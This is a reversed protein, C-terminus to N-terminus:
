WAESDMKRFAATAVVKCVSRYGTEGVYLVACFMDRAESGDEPLAGCRGGQLHAQVWDVLGRFGVEPLGGFSWRAALGTGLRGVGAGCQTGQGVDDQGDHPPDGPQQQQRHGPDGAGQATGLCGVGLRGAGALQTWECPGRRGM